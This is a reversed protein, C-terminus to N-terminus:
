RPHHAFAETTGGMDKMDNSNVALIVSGAGLFLLSKFMAHTFLHFMSAMYGLGGHDEPTLKMSTSVGLAVMMFGIQSITSFALVRKIDTQVVAIIAAFLATFAGVYAIGQLVEPTFGIYIPFLRAVLFVGAVVMTAAHILASVPPPVRWPTPYGSTCRSCPRSVPQASLSSHWPGLHPASAGLFTTGLASSLISGDGGMIAEFDFTQTFYSLVLIGILFFLDAFRTVIFAKKSAAVAEPKTYYFGILLYSSVGGAGWFIYMQFINTALVLGMMSFTFLSLFSYYRQFGKEGKMYGLSYIHVM